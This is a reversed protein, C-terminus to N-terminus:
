ENNVEDKVKKFSEFDIGLQHKQWLKILKLMAESYCYKSLRLVTRKKCLPCELFTVDADIKKSDILSTSPIVGVVSYRHKCFLQKINM